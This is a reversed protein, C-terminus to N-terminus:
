DPCDTKGPNKSPKASIDLALIRERTIQEAKLRCWQVGRSDSFLWEGERADDQVLTEEGRHVVGVHYARAYVTVKGQSDVRRRAVRTGLHVRAREEQWQQAEEDRRHPRRSLGLGAFLQCRSRGAQVPYEERQIRDLDDLRAQLQDADRCTWPEAWASSVGHSREVVGNDRPRRPPNFVLGIGLGGLWLALATPLGNAHGWPYGNDLRLTAPLGWRAFAERLGDRTAAVPV